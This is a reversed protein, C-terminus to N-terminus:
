WRGRPRDLLKKRENLKRLYFRYANIERKGHTGCVRGM